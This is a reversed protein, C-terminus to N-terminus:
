YPPCVLGPEPASKQKPELLQVGVRMNTEVPEYYCLLPISVWKVWADNENGFQYTDGQYHTQLPETVILSFRHAALDEYFGEFYGADESMAQDMLYKKEYDAVLPVQPVEGFTLLQRQDLFLIEGEGRNREVAQRVHELADGAMAADPRVNPRATLIGQSAPYFVAALLLLGALWGKHGELVWERGGSQWALGAAFLLGILFMDVNHLNSGGGIKVSVV